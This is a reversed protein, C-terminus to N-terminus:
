NWQPELLLIIKQYFKYKRQKIRYFLLLNATYGATYPIFTVAIECLMQYRYQCRRVASKFIKQSVKKLM